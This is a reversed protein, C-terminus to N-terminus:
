FKFIAWDSNQKIKVWVIHIHWYATETTVKCSVGQRLHWPSIWLLYFRKKLIVNIKCCAQM